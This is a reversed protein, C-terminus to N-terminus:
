IERFAFVGNKLVKCAYSLDGLSYNTTDTEVMQQIKKIPVRQNLSGDLLELIHRSTYKYSVQFDIGVVTIKNKEPLRDNIRKINKWKQYIEITREQPVRRGYQTVLDKLLINDGNQLYEIKTQKCSQLILFGALFFLIKKM